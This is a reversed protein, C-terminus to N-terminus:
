KLVPLFLKGDHGCEGQDGRVDGCSEKLQEGTVVDYVADCRHNNRPQETDLYPTHSHHACNICFPVKSDSGSTM